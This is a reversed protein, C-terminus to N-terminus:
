GTKSHDISDHSPTPENLFGKRALYLMTILIYTFTLAFGGILKYSVWVEMSFNYAVVLNLAGALFFGFAWGFNLRVWIEDILTLQKGLMQKMLNRRGVFHSGLLGASLLWNVITPKWQIFTENRFVLTLTGFIVSAWFTIKLERSIPKKFAWYAVVQVTVAAMLAATAIFIDSAFFVAVFLLIPAFDLLQNM